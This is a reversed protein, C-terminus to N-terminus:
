DSRRARAATTSGALVASKRASREWRKEGPYQADAVAQLKAEQAKMAETRLYALGVALADVQSEKWNTLDWGFIQTLYARVADKSAGQTGAVRLKANKSEITETQPVVLGFSEALFLTGDLWGVARGLGLGARFETGRSTAVNVQGRTMRQHAHTTIEVVMLPAKHREFVDILAATFVRFRRGNWSVDSEHTRRDPTKIESLEYPAKPDEPDGVFVGTATLSLDLAILRTM